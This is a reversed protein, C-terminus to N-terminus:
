LMFLEQWLKQPGAEVDLFRRRINGFMIWGIIKACNELPTPLRLQPAWEPKDVFRKTAGGGSCHKLM